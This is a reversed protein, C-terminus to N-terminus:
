SKTELHRVWRDLGKRVMGNLTKANRLKEAVPPSLRYYVRIFLRGWKTQRLTEDRFRRLVRVEPADYSGYVATAIYCGEKKQAPAVHESQSTKDASSLNQSHVPQNALQRYPIKMADLAKQLTDVTSSAETKNILNEERLPYGCQDFLDTYAAQWVEEPTIGWFWPYWNLIQSTLMGGLSSRIYVTAVVDGLQCSLTNEDYASPADSYEVYMLPRATEWSLWDKCITEFQTQINERNNEKFKENEAEMATAEGETFWRSGKEMAQSFRQAIDFTTSNNFYEVVTREFKVEADLNVFTNIYEECKKEDWQDEQVKCRLEWLSQEDYAPFDEGCLDAFTSSSDCKDNLQLEDIISLAVFMCAEDISADKVANARKERRLQETQKEKDENMQLLEGFQNLEEKAKSIHQKLKEASECVSNLLEPDLEETDAADPTKGDLVAELDKLWIIKIPKGAEQQAIAAKLKSEGPYEEGVVLYDTVGSITKRYLGGQAITRQVVECNQQDDNMVGLGTFVFKKGHIIITPNTEINTQYRALLAKSQKNFDEMTAIRPQNTVAPSTSLGPHAAARKWKAVTMKISLPEIVTVVQTDHAAHFTIKSGEESTFGLGQGDGPMEIKHYEYAKEFIMLKDYVQKLVSYPAGQQKLKEVFADAKQVALAKTKFSSRLLIKANGEVYERKEGPLAQQYDLYNINGNVAKEYQLALQDIAANFCDMKGSLAEKLCVPDDLLINTPEWKADHFEFSAVWHGVSQLFEEHQLQDDKAVVRVLNYRDEAAVVAHCLMMTPTETHLVEIGLFPHAITIIQYSVEDAQAYKKAFLIGLNRVLSHKVNEDIYDAEEFNLKSPQNQILITVPIDDMSEEDAYGEPVLITANESGDILEKETKCFGNPIAVSWEDTTIRNERKYRLELYPKEEDLPELENYLDIGSLEGCDLQKGNIYFGKVFTLLSNYFARRIKTEAANTVMNAYLYEDTGCKVAFHLFIMHIKIYLFEVPDLEEVALLAQNNSTLFMMNGKKTSREALAIKDLTMMRKDKPINRCEVSAKVFYDTKEDRFYKGGKVEIIKEGNQYTRKELIFEEPVVFKAYKGFSYSTVDIQEVTGEDEDDDDDDEDDDDDQADDTVDSDGAQDNLVSLVDEWSSSRSFRNAYLLSNRENTQEADIEGEHGVFELEDWDFVNHWDYAIRRKKIRRGHDYFDFHDFETESSWYHAMVECELVRSKARLSYGYFKEGLQRVEEEPPTNLDIDIESGDWDDTVAFNVSWKCEGSVHIEYDDDTGHEYDISNRGPISHALLLANGRRGKIRIEFDCSNAM